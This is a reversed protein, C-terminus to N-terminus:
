QLMHGFYKITKQIHLKDMEKKGANDKLSLVMVLLSRAVSDLGYDLIATM